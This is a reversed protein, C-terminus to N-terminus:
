IIELAPLRHPARTGPGETVDPIATVDAANIELAISRQILEVSLILRVRSRKRVLIGEVGQLPGRQIRVREGISLFPHPEARLHLNLSNRIGEIEEDRLAAPQAGFGV